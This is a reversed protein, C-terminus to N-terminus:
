PRRGRYIVTSKHNFLGVGAGYGAFRLLALEPAILLTAGGLLAGRAARRAPRMERTAVTMVNAKSFTLDNEGKRVTIAKDDASVFHGWHKHRDMSQVMTQQSPELAALRAWRDEQALAPLALALTLLLHKM